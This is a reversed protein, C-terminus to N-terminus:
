VLTFYPNNKLLQQQRFQNIYKLFFSYLCFVVWYGINWYYRHFAISLILLDTIVNEIDTPSFGHKVEIRFLLYYFTVISFFVLLSLMIFCLAKLAVFKTWKIMFIQNPLQFYFIKSYQLNIVNHLFNWSIFINILYWNEIRVFTNFLM